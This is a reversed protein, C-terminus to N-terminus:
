DEENKKREVAIVKKSIELVQGANIDEPSLLNTDTLAEIMSGDEHTCYIPKDNEEDWKTDGKIVKQQTMDDFYFILKDGVNGYHKRVSGNGM